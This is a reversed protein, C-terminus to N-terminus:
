AQCLKTFHTVCCLEALVSVLMALLPEAIARSHSRLWWLVVKPDDLTGLLPDLEAIILPTLNIAAEKVMWFGDGDFDHVVATNASGVPKNEPKFSSTQTAQTDASEDKDKKPSHCEKAWHGMKGCNHCKGKHHRKKGSEPNTIALAEDMAEKKEGQSSQGRRHWIKLQEAEECIQNILADTNISTAGHVLHASFLIHSAFTTLETSIGWLITHEYEKDTIDVGSAALEEWKYCLNGLFEQIDGRKACCMELFSQHLDAQVYTSKAQYEKTVM